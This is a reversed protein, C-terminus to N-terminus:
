RREGLMNLKGKWKEGTRQINEIMMRGKSMRSIEQTQKNMKKNM